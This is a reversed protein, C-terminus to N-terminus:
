PIIGTAAKKNAGYKCLYYGSFVILLGILLYARRLNKFNLEKYVKIPMSPLFM